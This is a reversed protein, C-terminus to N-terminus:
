TKGAYDVEEHLTVTWGEPVWISKVQTDWESNEKLNSNDECLNLSEGEFGCRSFLMPCDPLSYEIEGTTMYFDRIGWSENTAAENLMTFIELKLDPTTHLFEM